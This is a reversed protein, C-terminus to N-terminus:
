RGSSPLPAETRRCSRVTSMSADWHRYRSSTEPLIKGYAVVVIVQPERRKIEAAFEPTRISEPQILSLGFEDALLKVPPPTLKRGRQAPRDPQTVVLPIDYGALILNRLSPVAFESTGMFVLRM